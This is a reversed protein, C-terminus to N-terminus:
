CVLGNGRCAQEESGPVSEQLQEDTKMVESAHEELPLNFAVFNAKGQIWGHM